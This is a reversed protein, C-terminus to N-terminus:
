SEFGRNVGGANHRQLSHKKIFKQYIRCGYRRNRDVEGLDVFLANELEVVGSVGDYRWRREVWPRLRSSLILYVYREPLRNLMVLVMLDTDFVRMVWIIMEDAIRVACSNLCLVYLHFEWTAFLISLICNVASFSLCVSYLSLSNTCSARKTFSFLL